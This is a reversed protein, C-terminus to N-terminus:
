YRVGLNESSLLISINASAFFGELLPWLCSRLYNNDEELQGMQEVYFSTPIIVNAMPNCGVRNSKHDVVVTNSLNYAPWLEFVKSLPKGWCIPEGDDFDTAQCQKGSWEFLPKFSHGGKLRALVAAAVEDM